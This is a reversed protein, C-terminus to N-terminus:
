NIADFNELSEGTKGMFEGIANRIKDKFLSAIVIIIALLLVYEAMGQASEDQWLKKLVKKM